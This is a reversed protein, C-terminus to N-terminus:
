EWPVQLLREVNQIPQCIEDDVDLGDFEPEIHKMKKSKAASTDDFLWLPQRFKASPWIQQHFTCALCFVSVLVERNVHKLTFKSLKITNESGMFGWACNKQSGM